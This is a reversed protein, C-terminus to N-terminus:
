SFKASRWAIEESIDNSLYLLDDILPTLNDEQDGFFSERITAHVAHEIKSGTNLLETYTLPEMM